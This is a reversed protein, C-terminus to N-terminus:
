SATTSFFRTLHALTQDDRRRNCANSGKRSQRRLRGGTGRFKLEADRWEGNRLVIADGPQAANVAADFEAVNAVLTEAAGAPACCAVVLAPLLPATRSM